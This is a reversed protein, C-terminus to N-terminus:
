WPTVSARLRRPAAAPQPSSAAPPQRKHNTTPQTQRKPHRSHTPSPQRCAAPLPGNEATPLQPSPEDTFNTDTPPQEFEKSDAALEEESEEFDPDEEDGWPIEPIPDQDLDKPKSKYRRAQEAQAALHRRRKQKPGEHLLEDAKGSFCDEIHHMVQDALAPDPLAKQIAQNIGDAMDHLDDQSFYRHRTPIFAFPKSRELLWAAARWHKKAAARLNKIPELQGDIEACKLQHRFAPDSACERRVTRPSCGLYRAAATLSCGNTILGILQGRKFDNLLRPRGPRLQPQSEQSM